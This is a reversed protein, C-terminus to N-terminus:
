LKTAHDPINRTNGLVIKFGKYVGRRYSESTYNFHNATLIASISCFRIEITELLSSFTKGQLLMKHLEDVDKVTPDDFKGEIKAHIHAVAIAKVQPTIRNMNNTQPTILKSEM